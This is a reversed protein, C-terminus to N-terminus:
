ASWTRRGYALKGCYVPNDLILKVFHGSWQDLKGNQRIVKKIGQLNMYKAIGGYGIKSSTFKQYILRVAEAETEEALLNNDKLYYGYPAFGGNWGGQRAKERRGNMTQEIINEREIEAVASLM